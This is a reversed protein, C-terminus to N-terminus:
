DGEKAVTPEASVETVEGTEPDYAEGSQRARAIAAERRWELMQARMELQAARAAQRVALVGASEMPVGEPDCYSQTGEPIVVVASPALLLSASM